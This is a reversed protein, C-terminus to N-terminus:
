CGLFLALLIIHSFEFLWDIQFALFTGKFWIAEDQPWCYHTVISLLKISFIIFIGIILHIILAQTALLAKKWPEKWPPIKTLICEGPPCHSSATVPEPIAM